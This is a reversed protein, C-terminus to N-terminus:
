AVRCVYWVCAAFSCVERFPCLCFTDELHGQSVSWLESFCLIALEESPARSPHAQVPLSGLGASHHRPSLRIKRNVGM